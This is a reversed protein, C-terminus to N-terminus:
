SGPEACGTKRAGEDWRAHLARIRAIREEIKPHSALWAPGGAPGAIDALKRFMSIQAAAPLGAARMLAAAYADAEFEDRRSLRAALLGTLLTAIWAGIGPLLRGLVMALAARAANQGTWDIMRRRAHGLAVHGLEHAIISGIEEASLRGMRYQDIVGQTVFIRGDPAALGNFVPIRYVHARLNEAGAARGLRRVVAELPPDDLPASRADLERRLRWASFRWMALAWAVMLLIPTLKLMGQIYPAFARADGANVRRRRLRRKRAPPAHPLSQNVM